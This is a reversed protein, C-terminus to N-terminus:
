CNIERELKEIYKELGAIRDKVRRCESRESATSWEPREGVTAIDSELELLLKVLRKRENGCIAAVMIKTGRGIDNKASRYEALEKEQRAICETLRKITEEMEAFKSEEVMKFM